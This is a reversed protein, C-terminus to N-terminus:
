DGIHMFFSQLSSITARNFSPRVLVPMNCSIMHSQTFSVSLLWKWSYSISSMSGHMALTAGAQKLCDGRRCIIFFHLGFFGHFCNLGPNHPKKQLLLGSPHPM